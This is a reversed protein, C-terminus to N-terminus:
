STVGSGARSESLYLGSPMTWLVRRRLRDYEDHAEDTDAVREPYPGIPGTGGAAAM